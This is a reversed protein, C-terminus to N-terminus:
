CRVEPELQLEFRHTATDSVEWCGHDGFRLQKVHGTMTGKTTDLVGECYTEQDSFSVRAV